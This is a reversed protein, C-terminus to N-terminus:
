FGSQARRTLEGVAEEALRSMEEYERSKDLYAQEKAKYQCSQTKYTQQLSEHEDLLALGRAAIYALKQKMQAAACLMGCHQLYGACHHVSFLMPSILLGHLLLFVIAERLGEAVVVGYFTPLHFCFIDRDLDSHWDLVYQCMLFYIAGTAFEWRRFFKEYRHEKDKNAVVAVKGKTYVVLNVLNAFPGMLIFSVQRRMISDTIALWGSITLAVLIPVQASQTVTLIARLDRRIAHKQENSSSGSM